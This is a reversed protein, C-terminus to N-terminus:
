RKLKMGFIISLNLKNCIWYSLIPLGLGGITGLIVNIFISTIGLKLLIIRIGATALLHMIYIPMSISGVYSLWNWHVKKAVICATFIGVVAVVFTMMQNMMLHSAMDSSIVYYGLNLAVFLVIIGINMVKSFDVDKILSGLVFFIFFSSIRSFEWGHMLPAFLYMLMSIGLIMKKSMFKSLLMYILFMFFLDYLFWFQAYPKYPLALIQSIGQGRNTVGSFLQMVLGQLGGWLFYPWILTFLKNKIGVGPKKKLWSDVFIGSLFMFLAMHFHYIFTYQLQYNLTNWHISSDHLGLIVHGYVVLIIGIGKANDIWQIRKSM